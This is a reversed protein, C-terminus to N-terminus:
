RQPRPARRPRWRRWPLAALGLWTALGLASLAAGWAVEPPAYRMTLTHRGAPFPIARVLVDAPWIPVERDDLRAVWGPWWADNVVLLAEGDAEAVVEVEELGRRVSLVRGPATPPARLAQVVVEDSGAALNAALRELTPQPDPFAVAGPAFSAWPRHPVSWAQWPAGPRDEVLTAGDLAGKLELAERPNLAPEVLLHTLGFRRFMRWRGEPFHSYLRAFRVADLGTYMEVQDVRAAANVPPIGMDEGDCLYRHWGDPVDPQYGNRYPTAIRPGPSAADLRALWAPGRCDLPAPHVAFPLALALHLGVVTAV